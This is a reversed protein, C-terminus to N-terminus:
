AILDTLIDVFFDNRVSIQQCLIGPDDQHRHIRTSGRFKIRDAFLRGWVM